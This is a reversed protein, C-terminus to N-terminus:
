KIKLKYRVDKELDKFKLKCRVAKEIYKPTKNLSNPM